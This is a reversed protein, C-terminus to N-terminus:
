SRSRRLRGYCVFLLGAVLAALGGGVALPSVTSGTAPLDGQSAGAVAPKPGPPVQYDVSDDASVTRGEPSTATVTATNHLRHGVDGKKLTYVVADCTRSQGPQLPAAGCTITKGLMKDTVVVDNLVTNGTNTVKFRYVLTDGASGGRPANDTYKGTTKELAIGPQDPWVTPTYTSTAPTGNADKVQYDVPDATGVFGPEPAFVIKGDEIKYTGQGPVTVSDVPNGDKDLLTLSDPELPVADDGASDNALPDISQPKGQPGSTTDPNAVPKM